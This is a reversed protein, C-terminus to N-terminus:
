PFQFQPKEMQKLSDILCTRLRSNQKLKVVRILDATEKKMPKVRFGFPFVGLIQQLYWRLEEDGCGDIGRPSTLLGLNIVAIDSERSKNSFISWQRKYNSLGLRVACALPSDFRGDSDHMYDGVFKWKPSSRLHEYLNDPTTNRANLPIYMPHAKAMQLINDVSQNDPQCCMAALQTAIVASESCMIKRVIPGAYNNSGVQTIRNWYKIIREDSSAKLRRFPSFVARAKGYVPVNTPSPEDQLRPVDRDGRMLITIDYILERDERKATSRYIHAESHSNLTDTFQEGLPWISILSKQKPDNVGIEVHGFKYRETANTAKNFDRKILIIDGSEIEVSM